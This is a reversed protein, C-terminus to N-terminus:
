LIYSYHEPSFKCGAMDLGFNGREVSLWTAVEPRATPRTPSTHSGLTIAIELLDKEPALLHVFALCKPPRHARLGEGHEQTARVNANTSSGM